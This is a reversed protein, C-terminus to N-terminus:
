PWTLDRPMSRLSVFGFILGRDFTTQRHEFYAFLVSRERHNELNVPDTQHKSKKANEKAM